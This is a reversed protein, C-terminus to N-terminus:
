TLCNVWVCLLLFSGEISPSLTSIQSFLRHTIPLVDSRHLNLKSHPKLSLAMAILLKCATLLAYGIPQLSPMTGGLMSHSINAQASSSGVWIYFSGPLSSRHTKQGWLWLVTTVASGLDFVWQWVSVTLWPTSLVCQNSSDSVVWHCSSSTDYKALSLEWELFMQMKCSFKLAVGSTSLTQLILGQVEKIILIKRLHLHFCINCKTNYDAKSWGYPSILFNNGPLSSKRGVDSLSSDKGSM